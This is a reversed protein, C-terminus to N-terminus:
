AVVALLRLEDRGTQLARPAAGGTRDSSCREPLLADPALCPLQNQCAFLFLGGGSRYVPAPAASPSGLRLASLSVRPRLLAPSPDSSRDAGRLPPPPDRGAIRSLAPIPLTSRTSSRQSSASPRPPPAPIAPPPAGPPCDLRHVGPITGVESKPIM